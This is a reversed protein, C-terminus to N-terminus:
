VPGGGEPHYIPWPGKEERLAKGGVSIDGVVVAGSLEFSQLQWEPLM